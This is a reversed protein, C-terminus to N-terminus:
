TIHEIKCFFCRAVFIQDFECWQKHLNAFEVELSYYCNSYPSCSLGGGGGFGDGGGDLRWLM